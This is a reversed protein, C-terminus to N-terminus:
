QRVPTMVPPLQGLLEVDRLQSMKESLRMAGSVYSESFGRAPPYYYYRSPVGYYLTNGSGTVDHGYGYHYARRRTGYSAYPYYYYYDESNGPATLIHIHVHMLMYAHIGSESAAVRCKYAHAYAQLMCVLAHMCTMGQQPVEFRSTRLPDSQSLLLWQVAGRLISVQFYVLFVIKCM